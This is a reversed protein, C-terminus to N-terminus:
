NRRVSQVDGAPRWLRLTTLVDRGPEVHVKFRNSVARARESWALFVAPPDQIGTEQFDRVAAQYEDDSKSFRIRDLAADLHDNGVKGRLEGHSHWVRYVRFLSPGSVLETLLADFNGEVLAKDLNELSIERLTMEVGVAELQRKLVLAVREFEGPVLCVFSIKRPRLTESAQRPDFSFASHGPELAWYNPWILGSSAVGHGYLGDALVEDRNVALNFARRVRADRFIPLNTNFMLLLQYRKVFTFVSVETAGTLSELADAGVEYLMDIHNRLMEAWATRISPYRQVVIKDIAPRGLYYGDNAVLESKDSAVSKFPGTGSGDPKRIPSDLAEILLPSPRRLAIRIENESSAAIGQIDEFAPGMWRPLTSRLIEAVTQANVPSGDHFTANSRLRIDLSLRDPAITWSEALAPRPRGDESFNILGESSLIQKLQQVGAMESAAALQGM